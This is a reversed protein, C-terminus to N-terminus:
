TRLEWQEELISYFGSKAWVGQSNRRVVQSAKYEKLGHITEGQILPMWTRVSKNLTKMQSNRSWICESSEKSSAELSVSERSGGWVM